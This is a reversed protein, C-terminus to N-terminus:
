VAIIEGGITEIVAPIGSEKIQNVFLEGDVGGDLAMPPEFLLGRTEKKAGAQHVEATPVYPPNSVILDVQIDRLPALMDGQLFELRDLVGHQKANQKAVALAAPSLDTAIIRHHEKLELALTIAICGSGTCIDAIVLSRGLKKSIAPLVELARDVLMETDPRPILVDPTVIFTRGYFDARGIIYALPMGMIRKDQMESIEKLQSDSLIDDGHAILYSSDEQRLVHLVIREADIRPADSSHELATETNKVVKRITM